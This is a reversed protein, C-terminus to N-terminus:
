RGIARVEIRDLQAERLQLRQDADSATAAGLREPREEALAQRVETRVFAAVVKPVAAVATGCAATWRKAM